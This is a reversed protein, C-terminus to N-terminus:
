LLLLLFEVCLFKGCTLGNWYEIDAACNCASNICKLNESPRCSDDDACPEFISSKYGKLLM